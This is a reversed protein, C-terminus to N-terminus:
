SGSYGRLSILSVWNTLLAQGNTGIGISYMKYKFTDAELFIDLLNQLTLFVFLEFSVRPLNSAVSSSSFFTLINLLKPKQSRWFSKLISVIPQLIYPLTKKKLSFTIQIQTNLLRSIWALDRSYKVLKEYYRLIFIQTFVEGGSKM